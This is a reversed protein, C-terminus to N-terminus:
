PQKATVPSTAPAPTGQAPFTHRVTVRAPNGMAVCFPPVDNVVVSGSTILAGEGITVGKLITVGRGIWARACIRVPKTEEPSLSPTAPDLFEHAVADADSIYVESSIGAGEEITIRNGVLITVRHGFQVGDGVLLECEDPRGAGIIELDGFVKM